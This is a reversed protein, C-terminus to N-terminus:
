RAYILVTLCIVLTVGFIQIYHKHSTYQLSYIRYILLINIFFLVFRPFFKNKINNRLIAYIGAFMACIRMFALVTREEALQVLTYAHNQATDMIYFM